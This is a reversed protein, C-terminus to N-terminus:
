NQLANHKSIKKNAEFTTLVLNCNFMYCVFVDQLNRAHDPAMKIHPKM